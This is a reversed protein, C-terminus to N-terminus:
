ILYPIEYSNKKCQNISGDSIDLNHAATAVKENLNNKNISIQQSSVSFKNILVILVLYNVCFSITWKM